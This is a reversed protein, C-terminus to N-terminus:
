PPYAGIILLLIILYVSLVITWAVCWSLVFRFDKSDPLPKVGETSREVEIKSFVPGWTKWLCMMLTLQISLNLIWFLWFGRFVECLTGVSIIIIWGALVHRRLQPYFGIDRKDVLHLLLTDPVKKLIMYLYVFAIVAWALTLWSIQFIGQTVLSYGQSLRLAGANVLSFVVIIVGSRRVRDVIGSRHQRYYPEEIEIAKSTKFSNSILFSSVIAFLMYLGVILVAVVDFTLTNYREAFGLYNLGMLIAFVAMALSIELQLPPLRTCLLALFAILLSYSFGGGLQALVNERLVFTFALMVLVSSFILIDGASFSSIILKLKARDTM